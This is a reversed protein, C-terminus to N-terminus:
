PMVPDSDSSMMEVASDPGGLRPISIPSDNMTTAMPNLNPATGNWMHTGSTYWPAGVDTVMSTAVAGFIADKASANRNSASPSPECDAEHVCISAARAMTDMTSPLMTAIAWVLRRRM